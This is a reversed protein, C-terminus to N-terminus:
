EKSSTTKGAEVSTAPRHVFQVVDVQIMLVVSALLLKDLTLRDVCFSNDHAERRLYIFATTSLPEKKM